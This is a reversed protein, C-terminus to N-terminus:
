KVVLNVLKGRIVLTKVLQKGELRQQVKDDALATAKIVEEDADAAVKIVTALKGNVQV